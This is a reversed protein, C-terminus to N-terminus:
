VDQLPSSQGWRACLHDVGLQQGDNAEKASGTVARAISGLAVLLKFIGLKSVPVFDPFLPLLTCAHPGVM